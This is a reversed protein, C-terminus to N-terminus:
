LVSDFEGDGVCLLGVAIQHSFHVVCHGVKGEGDVPIMHFGM